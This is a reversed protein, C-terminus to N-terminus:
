FFSVNKMKFLDGKKIIQCKVRPKGPDRLGVVREEGFAGHMNIM